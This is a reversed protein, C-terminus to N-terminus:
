GLLRRYEAEALGYSGNSAREVSERDRIVIHGRHTRILREAEMRHLAVTVSPRRVGLARALVDQTVLLDEQRMRDSAMMLWRAVRDEITSSANAAATHVSLVIFAQAYRVFRARMSPSAAMATRLASAEIARGSGAMSVYAENPWSATGTIVPLGTMGEMGVPAIEISRGSGGHAVISIVGSDPFCVEQIPVNAEKRLQGAALRVHRLDPELKALDSPSLGKLLLNGGPPSRHAVRSFAQRPVDSRAELAHLGADENRM